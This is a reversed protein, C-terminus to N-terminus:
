QESIFKEKESTFTSIPLDDSNYLYSQVLPSWGYRIYKPASIGPATAVVTEDSGVLEIKATAPIFKHDAGAIEFDGLPDDTSHLGDAHSFWARISGTETQAREFLPSQYGIKESYVIARAALDLRLAVTQKDAPHANNDHTGKDLSVAMATNDIALARRQADRIAGWYPRHGISSIQVYLFPFDGQGWRLRWDQILATFRELYGPALMENADQEGQYWIVGKITYPSLPAIMGNYLTSPVFDEHLAHGIVADSKGELIAGNRQAAQSADTMENSAYARAVPLSAYTSVGASIWSEVPTGGVAAEILGVPVGQEEVIHRGFFYAVASFDKATEPTCLTWQEPIDETAASFIHWGERLLRIKPQNAAAIEGESNQLPMNKGFGKLPMEMNSQGSAVWVDGILIDTRVVPHDTRSGAVQLTYPGGAPEARLWASWLGHDDAQTEVSQDRLTVTIKEAADAWGWIHIPRERQLVAHDSLLHPLRVECRGPLSWVFMLFFSLNFGIWEKKM